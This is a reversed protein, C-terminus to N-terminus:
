RLRRATEPDLPGDATAALKAAVDVDDQEAIHAPTDKIDLQLEETKGSTNTDSGM